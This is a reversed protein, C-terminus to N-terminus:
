ESSRLYGANSLGVRDLLRTFRPDTRLSDLRPDVKLLCLDEDHEAYARELWEFAHDKEGLAVYIGAIFGSQVYQKASMRILEDIAERAKETRGMLAHIRGLSATVEPVNGLSSRGTQYELAAEEYNGQAELTHGLGFHAVAFDPDLELTRRFQEIAWVYRRALYLLSAACSNITLSLPDLGKAREAHALAHEVRGTLVLHIGFWAHAIAYNPNLEIAREFEKEGRSWDWQRTRLHGLSARAEALQPDLELAKLLAREAKLDSEELPIASYSHLLNYSDALGTYALAFNPDLEIAKNFCEIGKVLGKSTRKDFFYRGRLFAEYAEANETYRKALLRREEGTLKPALAKAVQESISDEVAFINTFKEDFKEAWALVGDGVNVLQLTLRLRKGAKRVSGDLVWQVGLEKGVLVPDQGKDYKRVSSTPRVTVRRLNSLRTILADAMGLGLYESGTPGITAFPLVAIAAKDTEASDGSSDPTISSASAVGDTRTMMSPVSAETVSAVFRYGRRPVTEIYKHGNASRGLAKRIEFISVTLNGEEVFSDAWVQKLLEDKCVLRGSKEVLAALVGFVKPKLPLIQGDRQLTQEGIDLRFPGFNYVRKSMRRSLGKSFEFSEGLVL